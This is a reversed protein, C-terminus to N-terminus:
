LVQLALISIDLPFHSGMCLHSLFLIMLNHYPQTDMIILRNIGLDNGTVGV